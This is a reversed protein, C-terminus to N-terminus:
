DAVDLGLYRLEALLKPWSRPPVTCVNDARVFACKGPTHSNRCHDPVASRCGLTQSESDLDSLLRRRNLKATLLANTRILPPTASFHQDADYLMAKLANDM